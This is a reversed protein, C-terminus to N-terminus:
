ASATSVGQQSDDFVLQRILKGGSHEIESFNLIKMLYGHNLSKKPLDPNMSKAMKSYDPVYNNRRKIAFHAKSVDIFERDNKKSKEITEEIITKKISKSFSYNPIRRNRTNSAALERENKGLTQQMSKFMGRAKTEKKPRQNNEGMEFFMYKRALSNEKLLMANLEFVAKHNKISFSTPRVTIPKQNEKENTRKKRKKPSTLQNKIFSKSVSLDRLPLLRGIGDRENIFPVFGRKTKPKSILWSKESFLAPTEERLNNSTMQIRM